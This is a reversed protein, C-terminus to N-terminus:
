GNVHNQSKRKRHLLSTIPLVIVGAIEFLPSRAEVALVFGEYLSPQVM